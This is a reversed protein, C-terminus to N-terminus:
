TVQTTKKFKMRKWNQGIKIKAQNARKGKAMMRKPDRLTYVDLGDLVSKCVNVVDIQYANLFNWFNLMHQM